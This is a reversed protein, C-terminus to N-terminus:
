NCAATISSIQVWSSVGTGTSICVAADICNSCMYYQGGQSPTIAEIQAKTKSTLAGYGAYVLNGTLSMNGGVALDKEVSLSGGRPTAASYAAGNAEGADVFTLTPSNITEILYFASNNASRYLKYSTAGDVPAWMLRVSQTSTLAGAYTVMATTVSGTVTEGIQPVVASIKYYWPVTQTTSGQEVKWGLYQPPLKTTIAVNDDEFRQLAFASPGLLTFVSVLVVLFLIKSVVANIFKNM